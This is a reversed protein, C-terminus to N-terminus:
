FQEFLCTTVVFFRPVMERYGDLLRAILVTARFSVRAPRYRAQVQAVDVSCVVVDHDGGVHCIAFRGSQEREVADDM